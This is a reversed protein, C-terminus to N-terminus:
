PHSTKPEISAAFSKDALPSTPRPFSKRCAALTGIAAGSATIIAQIRIGRVHFGREQIKWAGFILFAVAAFAILAIIGALLPPSGFARVLLYGALMALTFTLFAALALRVALDDARQRYFDTSSIAPPNEMKWSSSGFADSLIANRSHHQIALRARHTYVRPEKPLDEFSICNWTESTQIHELLKSLNNFYKEGNFDHSDSTPEFDFPHTVLVIISGALAPDAQAECIQIWELAQDPLWTTQPVIGISTEGIEAHHLDPSLWRFNLSQMATATHVDWANWPPVFDLIERGLAQSLADRGVRLAAKQWDPPHKAFEGKRHSDGPFNRHEFGHLAPKVVGRDVYEKLLKVWPDDANNLWSQAVTVSKPDLIQGPHDTHPFPIVGAVIKARRAEVLEFLRRELVLPPISRDYIPTPAYDDYRVILHNLRDPALATQAAAFPAFFFLIRFASNM